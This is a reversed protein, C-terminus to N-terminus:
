RPSNRERAAQEWKYALTYFLASRPLMDEPGGQNQGSAAGLPIHEAMPGFALPLAEQM